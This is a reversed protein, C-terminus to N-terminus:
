RIKLPLFTRLDRILRSPQATEYGSGYMFVPRLGSAPTRPFIRLIDDTELPDDPNTDTTWSYRAVDVRTEIYHSGAPLLGFGAPNAPRTLTAYVGPSVQGRVIRVWYESSSIEHTDTIEPGTYHTGSHLANRVYFPMRAAVRAQMLFGHHGDNWMRVSDYADPGRFTRPATTIVDLQARRLAYWVNENWVGLKRAPLMVSTAPM